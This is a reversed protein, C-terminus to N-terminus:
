ECGRGLVLLLFNKESGLLREEIRQLGGRRSPPTTMRACMARSTMVERSQSEM